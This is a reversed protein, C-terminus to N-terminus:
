FTTDLLARPIGHLSPIVMAEGIAKKMSDDGSDYMDKMMDMIGVASALSLPPTVRFNLGGVCLQVQQLIKRQLQPRKGRLLSIQGITLGM